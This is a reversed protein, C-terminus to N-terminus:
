TRITSHKAILIDIDSNFTTSFTRKKTFRFLVVLLSRVSSQHKRHEFIRTRNNTRSIENNEIRAAYAIISFSRITKHFSDKRRMITVIINSVFINDYLVRLIDFIVSTRKRIWLDFHPILRSKYM